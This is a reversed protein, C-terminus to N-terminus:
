PKNLESEIKSSPKTDPVSLFVVRRDILGGKTVPHESGDRQRAILNKPICGSDYCSAGQSYYPRPSELMDAAIMGGGAGILIAGFIGAAIKVYKRVEM